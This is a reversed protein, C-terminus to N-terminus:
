LPVDKLTFPVKFTQINDHLTLVLKAGAPLKGEYSLTYTYNKNFGGYGNRELEVRTNGAVAEFSIIDDPDLNVDLTIQREGADIEKIAAGLETGKAGAKLETIGLDLERTGEAVVYELTGSLEKIGTVGPKPTALNVEFMVSTQDEALNVSELEVEDSDLLSSGDSATAVELASEDSVSLITGAFQAHLAVKLGPKSIFPGFDFGKPVKLVTQLGVVELGKLPEGKAAPGTGKSAGLASRLAAYSEQAAAVEAAYDFAPAAGKAIVARVPGKTGFMVENFRDDFEPGGEDMDGGHAAVWADDAMLTDMATLIKGGDMKIALSKERKAFNSVETPVSPLNILVSHQMTGVMAAMMPKTQQFKAREEKVKAAREVATLEAPKEADADPEDKRLSLVGGGAADGAWGFKLMGQSGFDVENLDKFYATGKFNVRGDDLRKYTVDKWVEIGRTDKLVDAVAKTLATEPDDNDGAMLDVPQFSCEHIVKGSGDPNLTFEQKTEFCGSLLGGLLLGAVVRSFM